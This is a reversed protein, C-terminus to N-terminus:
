VIPSRRSGTVGVSSPTPARKTPRILLHLIEARGIEVFKHHQEFEADLEEQKKEIMDEVMRVQKIREGLNFSM